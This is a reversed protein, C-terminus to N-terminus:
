GNTKPHLFEQPQMIKDGARLSSDELRKKKLFVIKASFAYFYAFLFYCIM